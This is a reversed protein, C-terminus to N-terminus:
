SQAYYKRPFSNNFSTLYYIPVSSNLLWYWNNCKGYCRWVLFYNSETALESISLRVGSIGIRRPSASETNNGSSQKISKLKKIGMLANLRGCSSPKDFHLQLCRCQTEQQRKYEGHKNLHLTVSRIGILKVRCQSNITSLPLPSCLSNWASFEHLSTLFSM